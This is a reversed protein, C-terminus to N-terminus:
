IALHENTYDGATRDKYKARTFQGLSIAPLYSEPENEWSIENLLYVMYRVRIM